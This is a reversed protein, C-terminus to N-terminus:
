GPRPHETLLGAQVCEKTARRITSKSFPLVLALSRKSEYFGAGTGDRYAARQLLLAAVPSLSHAVADDFAQAWRDLPSPWDPTTDQTVM